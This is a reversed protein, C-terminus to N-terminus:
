KKSEPKKDPISYIARGSEDLFELKPTGDPLIQMRIRTRGKIDSMVFLMSEDRDKGLFLRGEALENNDKLVQIAAQRKEKDTIKLAAEYKAMMVDSPINPRQSMYLGTEYSGNDSELHKFGITESQQVKDWTLSGFHGKGGNDGFLLGGMEEGSQDFFIMGPPRPGDRRIIKGNRIGPHQREHNSIVMDLKGDKEVINIREVDIEGFRQNKTQLSFATLFIVAFVLTSAFAYVKLYRVEKELKSEM